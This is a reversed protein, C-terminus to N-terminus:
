LRIALPGRPQANGGDKCAAKCVDTGKRVDGMMCRMVCGPDPEDEKTCGALLLALVLSAALIKM